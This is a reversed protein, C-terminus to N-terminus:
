AAAPIMLTPRATQISARRYPKQPANTMSGRRNPKKPAMNKFNEVSSKRHPLQPPAHHSSRRKPDGRQRNLKLSLGEWRSCKSDPAHGDDDADGDVSASANREPSLAMYEPLVKANDPVITLQNTSISLGSFFFHGLPTTVSDTM